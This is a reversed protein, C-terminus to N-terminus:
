GIATLLDILILMLILVSGHLPTTRPKIEDSRLDWQRTFRMFDAADIGAGAATSGRKRYALLFPM